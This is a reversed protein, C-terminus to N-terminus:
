REPRRWHTLDPSFCDLHLGTVRPTGCPETRPGSKNESYVDSGNILASAKPRLDPGQHQPSLPYLPQRSQFTNSLALENSIEEFPTTINRCFVLYMVQYVVLFLNCLVRICKYICHVGVMLVERRAVQANVQKLSVGIGKTVCSEGFLNRTVFMWVFRFKSVHTEKIGYRRQEDLITYVLQKILTTSMHCSECYTLCSIETQTSKSSSMRDDSNSSLQINVPKKPYNTECVAELRKWLLSCVSPLSSFQPVSVVAPLSFQLHLGCKTILYHTLTVLFHHIGAYLEKSIRAEPSLPSTIIGFTRNQIHYLVPHKEQVQELIKNTLAKISKVEYQLRKFYSDYNQYQSYQDM